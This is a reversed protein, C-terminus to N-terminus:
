GLTAIQTRLEQIAKTLIDYRESDERTWHDKMELYFRTEELQNLRELLTQKKM